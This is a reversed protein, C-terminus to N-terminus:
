DRLPQSSYIAEATRCTATIAAQLNDREMPDAGKPGLKLYDDLADLAARLAVFARRLERAWNEQAKADSM